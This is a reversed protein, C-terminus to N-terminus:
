KYNQTVLEIKKDLEIMLESPADELNQNQIRLVSQKMDFAQKSSILGMTQWEKIQLLVKSQDIRSLAIGALNELLRKSSGTPTISSIKDSVKMIQYYSQKWQDIAKIYFEEDYLDSAKVNQSYYDDLNKIVRTEARLHNRGKKDEPIDRGTEVLQNQKHYIVISDRKGKYTIGNDMDLRKYKNAYGLHRFYLKADHQMSLTPGIDIRTVEADGIPLELCDELKRIAEEISGRKFDYFPNSLFWSKLNGQPLKLRSETVNLKLKKDLYGTYTVTQNVQLETVNELKPVVTKILSKDKCQSQKLVMKVTDYM